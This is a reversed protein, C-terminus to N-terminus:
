AATKRRTATAVRTNCAVAEAEVAVTTAWVILIVVLRHTDGGGYSGVGEQVRGGGIL